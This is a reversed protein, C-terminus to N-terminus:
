DHQKDPFKLPEKSTEIDFAMFRLDPRELIREEKEFKDAYGNKYSIRFWTGARIKLDICARSHYQVDYERIDDILEM